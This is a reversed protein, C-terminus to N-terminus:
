NITPDHKLEIEAVLRARVAGEHKEKLEKLRSANAKYNPARTTYEQMLQIYERTEAATLGLLVREGHRDIEYRDDSFTVDQAKAMEWAEPQGFTTALNTWWGV